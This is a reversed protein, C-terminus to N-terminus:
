GEVAVRVAPPVFEGRPPLESLTLRPTVISVRPWPSGHPM